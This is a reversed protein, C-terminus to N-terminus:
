PESAHHDSLSAGTTLQCPPSFGGGMSMCSHPQMVPRKEVGISLFRLISQILLLLGPAFDEAATPDAPATSATTLITM